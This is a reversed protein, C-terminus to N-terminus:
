DEFRDAKRMVEDLKVKDVNKDQKLCAREAYDLSAELEQDEQRQRGLASIVPM